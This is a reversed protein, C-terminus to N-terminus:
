KKKVLKSVLKTILPIAAAILSSIILGEGKQSKIMTHVKNLNKNDGIFRYKNKHPLMLKTLKVKNKKSLKFDPHEQLINKMCRCIFKTQNKKYHKLDGINEAMLADGNKEVEMKSIPKVKGM